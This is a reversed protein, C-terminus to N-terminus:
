SCKIFLLIAGYLTGSFYESFVNKSVTKGGVWYAFPLSVVGGLPCTILGKIALGGYYRWGSAPFWDFGLSTGGYSLAFAVLASLYALPPSFSLYGILGFPLACLLNRLQRNVGSYM